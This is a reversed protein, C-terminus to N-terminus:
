KSLFRLKWRSNANSIPPRITSRPTATAAARTRRLTQARMRPFTPILRTSQQERVADVVISRADLEFALVGLLHEAEPLPHERRRDQDEQVCLAVVREDASEEGRGHEAEVLDRIPERVSGRRLHCVDDRADRKGRERLYPVVDVTESLPVESHDLQRRGDRKRHGRAYDAHCWLEDVDNEPFLPARYHRYHLYQRHPPRHSREARVDPRHVLRYPSGVNRHAYLRELDSDHGEGDVWRCFAETNQTDRADDDSVAEHRM